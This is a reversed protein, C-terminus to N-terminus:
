EKIGKSQSGSNRIGWSLSVRKFTDNGRVPVEISLTVRSVRQIGSVRIGWNLSVKKLTGDGSVPAETSTKIFNRTEELIPECNM